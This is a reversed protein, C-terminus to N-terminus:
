KSGSKAREDGSKASVTSDGKTWKEWSVDRRESSAPALPRPGLLDAPNAIQAAINRQSSCGMNHYPLNRPDEALNAPWQDCLPAEAVYRAFSLRIPPQREGESHYAQIAIQSQDLGFDRMLDKLEVLAQLTAVENPAGSPVGISLRGNGQTAGRHQSLFEVVNARQQPTMGASGRAVRLTLTSPQHSVIIPHRQAPDIMTWGAVHTGPEDGPRCATVAIALMTVTLTARMAHAGYRGRDRTSHHKRPTM